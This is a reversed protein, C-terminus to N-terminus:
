RTSGKEILSACFIVAIGLLALAVWAYGTHLRVAQLGFNCLSVAAALSGLVLVPKEGALAGAAM